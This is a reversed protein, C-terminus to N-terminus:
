RQRNGGNGSGIRTEDHGRLVRDDELRVGIQEIVGDRMDNAKLTEFVANRIEDRSPIDQFHLAKASQLM